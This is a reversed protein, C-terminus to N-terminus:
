RRRRCAAMGVLLLWAGAPAPVVTTQWSVVTATASGGEYTMTLSGAGFDFLQIDTQPETTSWLSESGMVGFSLSIFSPVGRGDAPVPVPSVSATIGDGPENDFVDFLMVPTDAGVITVDGGDGFRTRLSFPSYNSLEVSYSASDRDFAESQITDTEFTLDINFTDGVGLGSLFGPPAGDVSQYAGAIQWRLIEGRAGGAVGLAVASLAAQAFLRNM